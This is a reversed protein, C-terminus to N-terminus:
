TPLAGGIGGYPQSARRHQERVAAAIAAQTAVGQKVLHDGIRGDRQPRYGHLVREFQERAILRLEVLLDGLLPVADVRYSEGSILRLGANIESERAIAQRLVSADLDHLLRAQEEASLANSVAVAVEGPTDSPLPLLRWQVCAQVSLPFRGAQLYAVDIAARPLDGQFAIAEALTEDDLWGQAMEKMRTQLANETRFSDFTCTKARELMGCRKLRLATMRRSRCTCPRIVMRGPGGDEDIVAVSGKNRCVECEIGTGDPASAPLENYTNVKSNLLWREPETISGILDKVKQPV